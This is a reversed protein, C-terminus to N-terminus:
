LMNRQGPDIEKIGQIRGFTKKYVVANRGTETKRRIGSDYIKGKNSLGNLRASSCARSIGTAQEVEYCNMGNSSNVIVKLVLQELRSLHDQVSEGAEKSTDSGKQYPAKQKM